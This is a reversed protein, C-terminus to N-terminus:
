LLNTGTVYSSMIHSRRTDTDPYICACASRLCNAHACLFFQTCCVNLKQNTHVMYICMYCVNLKQNTHVMYICMCCVNLKQNTHVMYICMCCVHVCRVSCLYTLNLFASSSNYIIIKDMYGSHVFSCLIDLHM